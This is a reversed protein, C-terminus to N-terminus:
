AHLGDSLHHGDSAVEFFYDLLSEPHYALPGVTEYAVLVDLNVVNVFGKVLRRVVAYEHYALCELGSVGYFLNVTECLYVLPEEILKLSDDICVLFDLGVVAAPFHRELQKFFGFHM